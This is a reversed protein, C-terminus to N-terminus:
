HARKLPTRTEFGPRLAPPEASGEWSASVVARCGRWWRGPGATCPSSPLGEVHLEVGPRLWSRRFRPVRSCRARPCRSWGGDWGSRQEPGILDPRSRWAGSVESGAM